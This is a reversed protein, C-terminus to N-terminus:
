GPLGLGTRINELFSRRGVVILNGIRFAGIEDMPNDREVGFERLYYSITKFNGHSFPVFLGGIKGKEWLELDQVTLNTM